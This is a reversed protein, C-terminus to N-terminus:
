SQQVACNPCIGSLTFHVDKVQYNPPMKFAPEIGELCTVENCVTCSFHIHRHTHHAEEECSHCAAYQIVGDINVIKHAEGAEVLRDLVRYITVRNCLDGVEDQIDSHSLAKESNQLLALITTKAVTKRSM